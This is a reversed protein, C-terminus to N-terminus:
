EENREEEGILASHGSRGWIIIDNIIKLIMLGLCFKKYPRSQTM